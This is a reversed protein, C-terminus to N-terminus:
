CPSAEVFRPNKVGLGTLRPAQGGRPHGLGRRRPHAAPAPSGSRGGSAGYVLYLPVGARGHQALLKAIESDHNTWDAKLYVAGTDALAKAVTSSGLALRENVQCTVCWAATFNVFVPKGQARLDALKQTSFPESDAEKGPAAPAAEGSGAQTSATQAGPATERAGTVLCAIALGAAVVAAIGPILPKGSTQAQAAGLLWACFGALVAAALM